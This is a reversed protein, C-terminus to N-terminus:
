GLLVTTGGLMSHLWAKEFIVGVGVREVTGTHCVKQVAMVYLLCGSYREKFIAKDYLGPDGNTRSLVVFEFSAPSRTSLPLIIRGVRASQSPSSANSLIAFVAHHAHNDGVRVVNFYATTTRFILTGPELRPRGNKHSLLDVAGHSASPRVLGVEDEPYAIARDIRRVDLQIIGSDHVIYWVGVLTEIPRPFDTGGHINLYQDTGAYCVAGRWGAWSWSPWLTCPKGNILRRSHPTDADPQWLLAYNLDMVSMGFQFAKRPDSGGLKFGKTMANTLATVADM